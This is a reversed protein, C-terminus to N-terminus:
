LMSLHGVSEPLSGHDGEQVAMQHARLFLERARDLEDVPRRTSL